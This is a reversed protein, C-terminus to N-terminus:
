FLRTSDLLFTVPGYNISSVHMYEGLAGKEVSVGQEAILEIVKEYLQQATDKKPKSPRKEKLNEAFWKRLRALEKEVKEARSRAQSFSDTMVIQAFVSACAENPHYINGTSPFVKRYEPVELLNRFIPKGDEAVRTRFRGNSKVLEVAIMRFDRGMRKLGQGEAFVVLPQIYIAGEGHRVPFVWCCDVGDPNVLHHKELWPCSEIKKAKIFGWVETYLSDFLGPHTRQFVHMQEHVLLSGFFLPVREPTSQHLTAFRKCTRESFVIHRDRTHSLGGEINGSVKIFSWPMEGFLPYQDKLAPYLEKVCCRIAEKENNTFERVGAQYRKRCQQRQEELTQGSIPSGTKASMEMERLIEFYPELSNDIIAAKGTEADLFSISVSSASMESAGKPAPKEASLACNSLFGLVAPLWLLTIKFKM